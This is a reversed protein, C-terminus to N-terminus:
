NECGRYEHKNSSFRRETYALTHPAACTAITSRSDKDTLFSIDTPSWGFSITWVFSPLRRKTALASLLKRAATSMSFNPWLRDLPNIGVPHYGVTTRLTSESKITALPFPIIDFAFGFRSYIALRNWPVRENM